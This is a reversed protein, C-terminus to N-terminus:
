NLTYIQGGGMFRINLGGNKSFIRCKQCGGSWEGHFELTHALQELFTISSSMSEILKKENSDDLDCM